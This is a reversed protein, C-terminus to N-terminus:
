FRVNLNFGYTRTTPLNYFLVGQSFASTSYSSEPDFNDIEKHLFFLNRGVLGISASKIFTNALLERPLNYTVSMERLRINTQDFIYNSAISSYSQWYDQGTITTTNPEYVPNESTGTNIVGDVLIGSERFQTSAESVGAQDLAADTGSYVDGGIRADILLRLGFNKYNITNSFGGTWDPQYNGLLVLESTPLPTGDARLVIQGDPAREYTTGWIEGYGGGATARVNVNGGNTNAFQFNELGDILEVLENKNKALNLSVDWSFDGKQIPVGGVLIEVGRNTIRGVNTRREPYIGGSVPVNLILDDSKIDYYSVDAYVRNSFMRIEAGFELSTTEEPRLNLDNLVAPNPLSLTTLGLYGNQDLRFTNELQYPETDNGVQAWSARVKLYDFLEQGPDILENVLFSLSASPYFFSNNSGDPDLPNTLASSWDNRASLDLFIIENYALQASGYISNVKKERLPEYESNIIGASEVTPQTPIKFEEGFLRTRERTDYRHNAGVNLNLKFKENLDKNFMVLFDANTESVRYQDFNFRGTTYFWHGPQEITEIKQIVRDTGIRVFASLYDTFEYNLKVFGQIRDRYDENVDNNLIWYPNGSTPPGYTRVSFDEENQFDKLDNIDINRPIGYLTAMIGETGQVARNDAEQYFYTAKSDITLKDTLHTIARLNFNHRTLDANPLISNSQTNSYSFRANITENGGELAITNFLNSGTRFFDKVNDEQASYPRTEGTWYLQQSGDLRPGWSSGTANLEELNAGISGNTGHGYENQYDPMLLPNEFTINSSFTVGLGKQSKGTKTTIMIVGNAARSGYLAAANPGKLVTMSEIDDPNIDSIGTGYDAKSFEGGGQDNSSGFGSNDMPIGDVVYLPQNNGTLSNNGRIVVRSGSGVGGTSRTIVVGPVRGALSNIPNQEKATTFDESDVTSVAYGLAKKEREVGFATVVVEQLQSIDPLLKIDIISRDGIDITENIFGVYSFVLQTAGQPLDIKYNGDLDTVTGVNSGRVTVNVGPLPEDDEMSTVKGSVSKNQALVNCTITLAFALFILLNKKM